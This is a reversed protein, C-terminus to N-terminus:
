TKRVVGSSQLDVRHTEHLRPLEEEGVDVSVVQNGNSALPIARVPTKTGSHAYGWAVITGGLDHWVHISRKM